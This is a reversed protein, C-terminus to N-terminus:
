LLGNLKDSFHNYLKVDWKNNEKIKNKIDDNIFPKVATQNKLHPINYIDMHLNLSKNFYIISEKMKSQIGVKFDLREMTEILRNYDNDTIDCDNLYGKGLLMKVQTNQTYPSDGYGQLSDVSKIPLHAWLTSMVTIEAEEMGSINKLKDKDVKLNGLFYYESIVRDVPNRLITIWNYKEYLKNDGLDSPMSVTYDYIPQDNLSFSSVKDDDRQFIPHPDFHNYLYSNNIDDLSNDVPLPTRNLHLEVFKKNSDPVNHLWYEWFKINPIHTYSFSFTDINYPHTYGDKFELWGDLNMYGIKNYTEISKKISDSYEMYEEERPHRYELPQKLLMTRLSSGATKPIHCFILIDKNDM